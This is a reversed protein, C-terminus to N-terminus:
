VPVFGIHAQTDGQMRQAVAEGRRLSDLEACLQGHENAAQIILAPGRRPFRVLDSMFGGKEGRNSLMEPIIPVHFRFLDCPRYEFDECRMDTCPLNLIDLLEKWLFEFFEPALLVPLAM